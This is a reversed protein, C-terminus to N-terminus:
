KQHEQSQLRSGPVNYPEMLTPMIVITDGKKIPKFNVADKKILQRACWKYTKSKNGYTDM